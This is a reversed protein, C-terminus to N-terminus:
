AMANLKLTFQSKKRAAASKHILNKAAAPSLMKVYPSSGIVTWCDSLTSILLFLFIISNVTLGKIDPISFEDLNLKSLNYVTDVPYTRIYKSFSKDNNWDDELTYYGNNNNWKLKNKYFRYDMGLTIKNNIVIPFNYM